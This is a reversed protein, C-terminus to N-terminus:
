NRLRDLSYDLIADRAQLRSVAEALTQFRFRRLLRETKPLTSKLNFYHTLGARVDIDRVVPHDPDYEWPHAYFIAQRDRALLHDLARETIRAPLIRFWAGGIGLKKSLLRTVSIPFEVLDVDSIRYARDPSGPIGYRWTQVPSISCDCSYGEERLIELAWLSDRTISFYPSRHAVIPQGSISEILQKTRRVEDRFQEPTLRYVKEHSYGHSALEHGGAAIRRVVAPYREAIWGLTFFTGRTGHDSLLQLLADLGVSLRHELGSWRSAPLEIGHYWDEVDVTFVACYDPDVM